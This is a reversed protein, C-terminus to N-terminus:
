RETISVNRNWKRMSGFRYQRRGNGHADDDDDVATAAIGDNVVRSSNGNYGISCTIYNFDIIIEAKQRQINHEKLHLTDHVYVGNEGLARLSIKHRSFPPPFSSCLVM